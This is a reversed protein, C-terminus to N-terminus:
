ANQCEGSGPFQDGHLVSSHESEQPPPLLVNVLIHSLGGGRFLPASQSPSASVVSSQLRIGHGPVLWSKSYDHQQLSSHM